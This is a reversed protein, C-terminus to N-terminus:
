YRVAGPFGGPRGSRGDLGGNCIGSALRLGNHGICGGIENSMASLLDKRNGHIIWKPPIIELPQRVEGSFEDAAKIVGPWSENYDDGILWGGPELLRWFVRADRLVSAYDHAADLHILGAKVGLMALIAAATDTTQPFPVVVDQVGARVVNTLFQEYLMPAGHRRPILDFFPSTKHGHELSGLFTDIAIVCGKTGRQKLLGALFITSAGKWVGVDIIITATEAARQLSEHQSNWGQLDSAMVPLLAPM